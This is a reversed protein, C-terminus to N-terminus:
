EEVETTKEGNFRMVKKIPESKTGYPFKGSDLLHDESGYTLHTPKSWAFLSVLVVILVFLGVGLWMGVYKHSEALDSGVLLIGLFAEIILLALVFFGLPKDVSTVLRVWDNKTGNM